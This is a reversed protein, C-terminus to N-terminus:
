ETIELKKRMLGDDYPDKENIKYLNNPSKIKTCLRLYECTGYMNQCNDSHRPWADLGNLSFCEKIYKDFFKKENKYNQIDSKDFIIITEQFEDGVSYERYLKKILEDETLNQSIRFRSKRLERYYCTNSYIGIQDLLDCYNLLQDSLKQTIHPNKSFFTKTKDEVIINLGDEFMIGDVYATENETIIEQEIGIWHKHTDFYKKEYCTLYVVLKILIEKLIREEKFEFKTYIVKNKSETIALEIDGTKRLTELGFHFASGILKAPSQEYRQEIGCYYKWYIRRPCSKMAQRM